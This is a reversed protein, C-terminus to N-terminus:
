YDYCSFTNNLQFLENENLKKVQKFVATLNQYISNRSYINNVILHIIFLGKENLHNKIIKLEEKNEFLNNNALANELIILDYKQNDNETIYPLLGNKIENKEYTSIFEKLNKIKDDHINNNLLIFNAQKFINKLYIYVINCSQEILIKIKFNKKFPISDIICSINEDVVSDTNINFNLTSNIDKVNFKTEIFNNEKNKIYLIKKHESKCLLKSNTEKMDKNDIINIPIMNYEKKPFFYDFLKNMFDENVDFNYTKYLLLIYKHTCDYIDLKLDKEEYLPDIVLMISDESKKYNTEKINLYFDNINTMPNYLLFNRINHINNSDIKKEKIEYYYSIFNDINSIENLNKLIMYKFGPINLNIIIKTEKQAEFFKLKFFEGAETIILNKKEFYKEMIEKLSLIFVYDVILIIQQLDKNKSIYKDLNKLHKNKVDDVLDLNNKNHYIRCFTQSDFVQKEKNTINIKEKIKGKITNVENNDKDNKLYSPLDKQIKKKFKSLRTKKELEYFKKSLDTITKQSKKSNDELEKMQIKSTKSENELIQIKEKLNESEKKLKEIENDKDILNQSIKQSVTLDHAYIMDSEIHIFYLDFDNEIKKTSLSNVIKEASDFFNKPFYSDIIIILVISEYKQNLQKFLELFIDMNKNMKKLSTIIKSNNSNISSKGSSYDYNIKNENEDKPLLYNMSTKIEIFICSNEKLELKMGNKINEYKMTKDKRFEAKAYILFKDIVITKNVTIIRDVESYIKKDDNKKYFILNPLEIIHNNAKSILMNMIREQVSYGLKFSSIIEKGKFEFLEKLNGTLNTENMFSSAINNLAAKDLEKEEIQIKPIYYNEKEIQYDIENKENFLTGREKKFFLDYISHNLIIYIIEIDKIKSKGLIGPKEGNNNLYDIIFSLIPTFLSHIYNKNIIKDKDFQVHGTVTLIDAIQEYNYEIVNSLQYDELSENNDM